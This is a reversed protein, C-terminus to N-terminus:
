EGWKDKSDIIVGSKRLRKVEKLDGESGADVIAIDERERRKPKGPNSSDSAVPAGKRKRGKAGAGTGAGAGTAKTSKRRKKKRANAMDEGLLDMHYDYAM